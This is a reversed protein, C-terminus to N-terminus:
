VYYFEMNIFLTVIVLTQRKTNLIILCYCNKNKFCVVKQIMKVDEGLKELYYLGASRYRNEGGGKIMTHDFNKSSIVTM